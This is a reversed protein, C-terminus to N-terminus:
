RRFLRRSATLGTLAGLADALLDLWSATRGIWPITQAIEIIGGLIILAILATLVHRVGKVPWGVGVLGGLALYALFHGVKDSIHFSHTNFPNPWLSLGLVMLLTLWFLVRVTRQNHTLSKSIM